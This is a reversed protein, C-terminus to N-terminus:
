GVLIFHFRVLILECAGTGSEIGRGSGGGFMQLNRGNIGGCYASGPKVAVVLFPGCKEGLSGQCFRPWSDVACLRFWKWPNPVRRCLCTIAPLRLHRM